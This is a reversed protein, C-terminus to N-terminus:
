RKKAELKAVRVVAANSEALSMTGTLVDGALTGVLTGTLGEDSTDKRRVSGTVVGKESFGEVISAGLPGSETSGSVRGGPDVSLSLEGDGLMKTEDNKFKVAAWDKEAPVYMTGPTVTYKGAFSLATGKGAAGADTGAGGDLSAVSSTPAGSEGAGPGPAPPVNKGCAACALLLLPMAVVPARRTM